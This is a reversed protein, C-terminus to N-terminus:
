SSASVVLQNTTVAFNLTSGAPLNTSGANLGLVVQGNAGGNNLLNVLNTLNTGSISATTQLLIPSSATYQGPTSTQTLTIPTGAAALAPLIAAATVAGASNLSDVEPTFTLSSITFSAPLTQGAPPTVTITPAVGIAM